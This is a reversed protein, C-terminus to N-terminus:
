KPQEMPMAMLAGFMGLQSCGEVFDPSPERLVFADGARSASVLLQLAAAPPRGAKALDLVAPRGGDIAARLRAALRTMAAADVVAPWGLAARSRAM